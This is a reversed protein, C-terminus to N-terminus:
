VVESPKLVVTRDARNLATRTPMNALDDPHCRFCPALEVLRSEAVQVAHLLNLNPYLLVDHWYNAAWWAVTETALLLPWTAGHQIHWPVVDSSTVFGESPSGGPALQFCVDEYKMDLVYPTAPLRGRRPSGVILAVDDPLGAPYEGGVPLGGELLM